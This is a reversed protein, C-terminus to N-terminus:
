TVREEGKQGIQKFKKMWEPAHDNVPAKTGAISEQAATPADSVPGDSVPQEASSVTASSGNRPKAATSRFAATVAVPQGLQNAPGSAERTPAGAKWKPQHPLPQTSKSVALSPNDTSCEPAHPPGNGLLTTVVKEKDESLSADSEAVIKKWQPTSASRAGVSPASGKNPVASIPTEGVWTMAGDTSSMTASRSGKAGPAEIVREEGKMGIEKFKSMWEPQKPRTAAPAPAHIHKENARSSSDAHSRSSSCSNPTAIPPGPPASPGAVAADVAGQAELQNEDAKIRMSRFKSLFEPQETSPANVALKKMLPTPPADEGKQRVKSRWDLTKGAAGQITNVSSGVRDQISTSSPIPSTGWKPVNAQKEEHSGLNQFDITTYSNHGYPTYAASHESRKVDLSRPKPPRWKDSTRAANNHSRLDEEIEMLSVGDVSKGGEVSIEIPLDDTQTAAEFCIKTHERDTQISIENVEVKLMESTCEDITQTSIETTNAKPTAADDNRDTQASVDFTLEIHTQMSVDRTDVIETQTSMEVLGTLPIRQIIAPGDTQVASEVHSSNTRTSEETRISADSITEAETQTTSGAISASSILSATSPSPPPELLEIEEVAIDGLSTRREPKEATEFDFPMGNCPLVIRRMPVKGPIAEGFQWLATSAGDLQQQLASCEDRTKKEAEQKELLLRRNQTQLDAVREELYAVHHDRAEVKEDITKNVLHLENMKWVIAQLDNTKRELDTKLLSTERAANMKSLAGQRASLAEVMAKEANVANQLSTCKSSLEVLDKEIEKEKQIVLRGAPTELLRQQYSIEPSSQLRRIISAGLVKSERKEADEAQSVSIGVAEESPSYGSANTDEGIENKELLGSEMMLRDVDLLNSLDPSGPIKQSAEEMVQKADGSGQAAKSKLLRVYFSRFQRLFVIAENERFQTTRLTNELEAQRTMFTKIEDRAETLERELKKIEKSEIEHQARLSTVESQYERAMSESKERASQLETMKNEMKERESEQLGGDNKSGSVSIQLDSVDGEDTCKAIKSIADWAKNNHPQRVRGTKRLARCELALIAAFRSLNQNREESKLILKKCLELSMEDQPTPVNRLCKVRQGFKITNITEDINYSSPSVTCIISTYFNGGLCPNLLKALKSVNAYTNPSVTAKEKSYDALKARVLNHISQLSANVMRGELALASDTQRSSKSRGQESGALDVMYLRSSRQKATARNHQQINMIFVAHSRSSDRNQETASQTRHSNGRAILAYVDEADLCCLESAGMLTAEGGEVEEICLGERLPHLLDVIRELYIEVYCCRVSFEIAEEGGMSKNIEDFVHAVTRPIMGETTEADSGPDSLCTELASTPAHKERRSRRRGKARENIEKGLEQGMMTHTKGTGTQGYTAVCCNIGDLLKQPIRSLSENYVEQQSAYEDFVQPHQNTAHCM